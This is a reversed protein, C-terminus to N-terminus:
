QKHQLEPKAWNTDKIIQTEKLKPWTQDKNTSKSQALNQRQQTFKLDHQVLHCVNKTKTQKTKFEKKGGRRASGYFTM